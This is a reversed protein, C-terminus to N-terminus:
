SKTVAEVPNSKAEAESIIQKIRRLDDLGINPSNWRSFVKRFESWLRDTEVTDYYEKDDPYLIHPYNTRTRESWTDIHFEIARREPEGATFYKRGVSAVTVPILESSRSNPMGGIMYLVQGVKPKEKPM